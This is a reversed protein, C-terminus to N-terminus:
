AEAHAASSSAQLDLHPSEAARSAEAPKFSALMIGARTERHRGGDM